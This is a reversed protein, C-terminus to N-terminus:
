DNPMALKASLDKVANDVAKRQQHNNIITRNITVTVDTDGGNHTPPTVDADPSPTVDTVNSGCTDTSLKSLEKRRRKAEAKLNPLVDLATDLVRFTNSANIWQEKVKDYVRGGRMAYELYGADVLQKVNRIATRESCCLRAALTEYSPYCEGNEGAHDAILLLTLKLHAPGNYHNMVLNMHHISM